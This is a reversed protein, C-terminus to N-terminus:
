VLLHSSLCHISSNSVPFSCFLFSFKISVAFVKFAIVLVVVAGGLKM